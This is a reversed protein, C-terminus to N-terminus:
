EPQSLDRVNQIRITGSGLNFKDGSVYDNKQDERMVGGQPSEPLRSSRTRPSYRNYSIPSRTTKTFRDSEFRNQRSQSVSASFYSYIRDLEKALRIDLRSVRHQIDWSSLWVTVTRWVNEWRPHHPYPNPKEIYDIANNMFAMAERFDRFKYVRRLEWRSNPYDGPIHSEVYDWGKMSRLQMDIEEISLATVDIRPQPLETIIENPIFDHDRELRKILERLRQNWSEDRLHLWKYDLLPTLSDPLAESDEPLNAGGVFIPIVPIKRKIATEIERRVWDSNLDIRRRGYKDSATLWGPGIVALLIGASSLAQEIRFPWKIGPNITTDLFVKSYGFARRLQEALGLAAAQSDKRRYNIFIIKNKM